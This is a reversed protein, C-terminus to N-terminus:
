ILRIKKEQIVDESFQSVSALDYILRDEGGEIDYEAPDLSAFKILGSKYCRFLLNIAYQQSKRKNKESNDFNFTYVPMDDKNLISFKHALNRAVPLSLVRM